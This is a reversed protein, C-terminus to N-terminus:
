SSLSVIEKLLSVSKADDKIIESFKGVSGEFFSEPYWTTDGPEDALGGYNVQYGIQYKGSGNEDLEGDKIHGIAAVTRLGYTPHVIPHGLKYKPNM